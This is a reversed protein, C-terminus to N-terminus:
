EADEADVSTSPSTSSNSKSTSAADPLLGVARLDDLSPTVAKFITLSPIQHFRSSQLKLTGREIVKISDGNALPVTQVKNTKNTFEWIRHADQLEKFPTSM